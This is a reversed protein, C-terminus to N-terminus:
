EGRVPHHAGDEATGLVLNGYQPSFPRTRVFPYLCYGNRDPPDMPHRQEDRDSIWKTGVLTGGCLRAQRCLRKEQAFGDTYHAGYPALYHSGFHPPDTLVYLSQLFPRHCAEM